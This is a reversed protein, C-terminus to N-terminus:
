LRVHRGNTSRSRVSADNKGMDPNEQSEDADSVDTKKRLARWLATCGDYGCTIPENPWQEVCRGHLGGDDHWEVVGM